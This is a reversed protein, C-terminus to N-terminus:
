FRRPGHIKDKYQENALAEVEVFLDPHESGFQAIIEGVIITTSGHRGSPWLHMFKVTDM